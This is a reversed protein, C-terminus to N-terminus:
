IGPACEQGWNHYGFIDVASGTDVYPPLPLIARTSFMVTNIIRVKM